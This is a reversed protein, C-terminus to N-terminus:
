KKFGIYRHTIVSLILIIGFFLQTYFGTLGVSVIGSNLSAIILGGVVAGYITGVGGWTPTGGVFIAAFVVLLIGSGTAPYFTRLELASVIGAFSAGFAAILFAITKVKSVNIGMARASEVNDGVYGIYQGIKHRYFFLYAIFAFFIAWLIQVPIGYIIRSVFIKRFVTGSLPVLSILDAKSFVMVLGRLVFNIGLTVVLSSIGIKTVIFANILGILTGAILGIFLALYPSLGLDVSYAFIWGAFAYISPFSLDIEGSVVVFVLAVAMTILLGAYSFIANYINIHLFVEPSGIMFLIIIFIYLLSVGFEIKYARLFRKM